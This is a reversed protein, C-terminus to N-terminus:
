ATQAGGARRNVWAIWAMEREFLRQSPYHITQKRASCLKQVGQNHTGANTRAALDQVLSSFYASSGGAKREGFYRVYNFSDSQVRYRQAPERALLELTLRDEERYEYEAPVVIDGDIKGVRTQVRQLAGISGAAVCDVASWPIGTPRGYLDYVLLQTADRTAQRVVKAQELSLTDQPVVAVGCGAKDFAEKLTHAEDESLQEAVVGFATGALRRADLSTFRPVCAFAAVLAEEPLPDRHQQFLAFEM